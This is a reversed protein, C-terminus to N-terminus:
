SVVKAYFNCVLVVVKPVIISLNIEVAYKAQARIGSSNNWLFM